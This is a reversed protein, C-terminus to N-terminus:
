SDEDVARIFLRRRADFAGGVGFNVNNEGSLAVANGVPGPVIKVDDFIVGPEKENASNAVKGQEIKEFSFHGILGRCRCSKRLRRPKKGRTLHRGNREARLLALKAEADALKAETM